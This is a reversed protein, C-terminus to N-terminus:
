KLGYLAKVLRCLHHPRTPDVFGPPQRMYVEEELVGHLFANRCMLSVFLGVGLLQLLSFFGSLLLNLWQVSLTKMTLVMVSGFVAPLWGRRTASLLGM